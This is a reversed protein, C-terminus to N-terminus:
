KDSDPPTPPKKEQDQLEKTVQATLNTTANKLSRSIKGLTRGFEVVKGPGLVIVAIVIILLAEWGGIGFFDM